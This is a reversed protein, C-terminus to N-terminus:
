CTIQDNDYMIMPNAAKIALCGNEQIWTSKGKDSHQENIICVFIDKLIYKLTDTLQLYYYYEFCGPREILAPSWQWTREIPQEWQCFPHWSCWWVPSLTSVLPHEKMLWCIQFLIKIASAIRPMHMLISFNLTPFLLIFIYMDELCVRWQPVKHEETKVLRCMQREPCLHRRNQLLDVQEKTGGTHRRFIYM